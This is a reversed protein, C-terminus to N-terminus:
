AAKLEEAPDRTEATKEADSADSAAGSDFSRTWFQHILLAGLTLLLGTALIIQM